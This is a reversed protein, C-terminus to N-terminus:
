TRDAALAAAGCPLLPFSVPHAVVHPAFASVAVIEALVARQEVVGLRGLVDLLDATGGSALRGGVGLSSEPRDAETVAVAPRQRVPGLRGGALHRSQDFDARVFSSESRAVGFEVHPRRERRLRRHPLVVLGDASSEPRAPARGGAAGRRVVRRADGTLLPPHGALGVDDGALRAPDRDTGIRRAHRAAWRRRRTTPASRDRGRRCTRARRGRLLRSAVHGGRDGDPQQQRRDNRAASIYAGHAAATIIM